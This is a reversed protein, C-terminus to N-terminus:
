NEGPCARLSLLSPSAPPQPRPQCTCESVSSQQKLQQRQLRPALEQPLPLLSISFVTNMCKWPGGAGAGHSGVRKCFISPSPSGLLLASPAAREWSRGGSQPRSALHAPRCGSSVRALGGRSQLRPSQHGKPQSNASPTRVQGRRTGLRAQQM